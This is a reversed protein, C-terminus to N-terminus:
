IKYSILYSFKEMIFDGIVEFYQQCNRSQLIAKSMQLVYLVVVALCVSSKGQTLRQLVSAIM